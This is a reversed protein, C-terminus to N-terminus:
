LLKGPRYDAAGKHKKALPAVAAVLADVQHPAAGVFRENQGLIEQLKAGVLRAFIDNGGGAAFPVIVRIPKHPFNAAADTQAAAPHCTTAVIMLITPAACAFRTLRTM